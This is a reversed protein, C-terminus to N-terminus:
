RAYTVIVIAHAAVQLESQLVSVTTQASKLELEAGLAAVAQEYHRRTVCERLAALSAKTELEGVIVGAQVELSYIKTDIHAVHKQTQTLSSEVQLSHFMFVVNFLLM